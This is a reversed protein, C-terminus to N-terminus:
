INLKFQKLDYLQNKINKIEFMKEYQSTLSKNISVKDDVKNIKINLNYINNILVCLDYKSVIDPSYIHRVGKWFIDNEIMNKIINALTLCTVGNWLHNSYGNIEKNKNSIIWELLSRKCKIEEGIISTRIICSNEPEGLSKSVGYINEEDHKDDEKYLGRNGNYVCDTTIHILKVNIKEAIEQLKHPFLSNVKIFTRYNDVKYKQPIVGICNIIIDNNKINKFLVKLKFDDDILVDYSNRDFCIVEYHLILLKKIYDGLMGTSGFLYIKM